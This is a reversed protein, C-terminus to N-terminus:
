CSLKRLQVSLVKSKVPCLYQKHSDTRIVTFTTLYTVKLQAKSDNKSYYGM